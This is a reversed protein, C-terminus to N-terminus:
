RAISSRVIVIRFFSGVPQYTPRRDSVVGQVLWSGDPKLWVLDQPDPKLGVPDGQQASM